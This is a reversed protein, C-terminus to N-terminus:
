DQTAKPLSEYWERATNPYIYFMRATFAMTAKISINDPYNYRAKWADMKETFEELDVEPQKQEIEYFGTCDYVGNENIRSEIGGYPNYCYDDDKGHYICKSCIESPQEELLSDILSLVKDLAVIHCSQGYDGQSQISLELERKQWRLKAKLKDADIYKM